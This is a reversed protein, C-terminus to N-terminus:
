RTPMRGSPPSTVTAPRTVGGPIQRPSAFPQKSTPLPFAKELLEMARAIAARRAKFLPAQDKWSTAVLFDVAEAAMADTKVVRSVTDSVTDSATHSVTKSKSKNRSRNATSPSDTDKEPLAALLAKYRAQFASRLDDPVGALRTEIATRIKPSRLNTVEEIVHVIWVWKGSRTVYGASVVEDLFATVEERGIGLHEEPDSALLRFIGAVSVGGDSAPCTRLYALFGRAGPSLLLFAPEDWLSRPVQGYRKKNNTM